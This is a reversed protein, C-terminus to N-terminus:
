FPVDINNVNEEMEALNQSYEDYANAIKQEENEKLEYDLIQIVSIVNYPDKSNTFLNEIGKKIRILSGDQPPTLAKKFSVMKYFKKQENNFDKQTVLIKYYDRGGHSSKYIKFFNKTNLKYIIYDGKEEEM